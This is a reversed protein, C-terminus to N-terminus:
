QGRNHVHAKTRLHLLLRTAYTGGGMGQGGDGSRACATLSSALFPATKGLIFVQACDLTRM